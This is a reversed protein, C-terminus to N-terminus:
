TTEINGLREGTPTWSKWRDSFAYITRRHYKGASVVRILGAGCLVKIDSYFLNDGRSGYMGYASLESFPLFFKDAGAADPFDPYITEPKLKGYYQAKCVIYLLRQRNNLSKFAHSRLMTEFIPASTDTRLKGGEDMYKGDSEWLKPSYVKKKM